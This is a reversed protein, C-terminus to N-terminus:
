QGYLDRVNDLWYELNFTHNLAENYVKDEIIRLTIDGDIEYRLQNYLSFSQNITLDPTKISDLYAILEVEGKEYQEKVKAYVTEYDGYITSLDEEM